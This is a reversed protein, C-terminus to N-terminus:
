ADLKYVITISSSGSRPEYSSSIGSRSYDYPPKGIERELWKDHMEKKQMQSSESWDDWSPISGDITLSLTVMDLLGEPNFIMVIIFMDNGITQPKIYYRTYGYDDQKLVEKHLYSHIFDEKTLSQGITLSSSIRIDSNSINIM